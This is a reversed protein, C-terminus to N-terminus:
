SLYDLASQSQTRKNQLFGESIEQHRLGTQSKEFISQGTWPDGPIMGLKPTNWLDTQEREQGDKRLRTVRTPKLGHLDPGGDTM